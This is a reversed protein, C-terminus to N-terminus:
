KVYLVNLIDNEKYKASRKQVLYAEDVWKLLPFDSPSDSIAISYIDERNFKKEIRLIKNENMCDQGMMGTFVGNVFILETALLDDDAINNDAAFYRLYVDYGGSVLVVRYGEKQLSQMMSYTEPVLKPVVCEDYFAKAQERMVSEPLGKLQRLYYEKHSTRIIRLYIQLLHCIKLLIYFKHRLQTMFTNHHKLVYKVYADASQYPVLTECFDYFAIKEKSEKM